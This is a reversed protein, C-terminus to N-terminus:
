KGRLLSFSTRSSRQPPRCTPLRIRRSISQEAGGGQFDDPLSAAAESRDGDGLRACALIAQLRRRGIRHDIAPEQVASSELLNSQVHRWVVKTDPRVSGDRLTGGAFTVWCPAKRKPRRKGRAVLGVAALKDYLVSNSDAARLFMEADPPTPGPRRRWIEVRRRSRGPRRSRATRGLRIHRREGDAAAFLIGRRLGKGDGNKVTSISAM